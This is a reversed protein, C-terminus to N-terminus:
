EHPREAQCSVGFVRVRQGSEVHELVCLDGVLWLKVHHPKEFNRGLQRGEIIVESSDYFANDALTVDAGNLLYSITGALPHPQSTEASPALVAPVGQEETSQCGAAAALCAALLLTAIHCAAKKM